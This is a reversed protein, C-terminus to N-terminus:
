LIDLGGGKKRKKKETKRPSVTSATELEVKRWLYYIELVHLLLYYLYNEYTFVTIYNLLILKYRTKGWASTDLLKLLM